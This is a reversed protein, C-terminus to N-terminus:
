FHEPFASSQPTSAPSRFASPNPNSDQEARSRGDLLLAPTPLRLSSESLERLTKGIEWGLHSFQFFADIQHRKQKAFDLEPGAINVFLSRERQEPSLEKTLQTVWQYQARNQVLFILFHSPEEFKQRVLDQIHHNSTRVDFPFTEPAEGLTRRLQETFSFSSSFVSFKTKPDLSLNQLNSNRLIEKLLADNLTALRPSRWGPFRRPVSLSAALISKIKLIRAVKQDILKQPLLGTRAARVLYRYVKLQDRRSWTLMILDNGAILARLATKELSGEVQVGKMLLDDTVVIGNYNLDRRLRESIIKESLSAPWGKPDLHTYAVHSMMVASPYIQTFEHFPIKQNEVPHSAVVQSLHTDGQLGGAGPFHKATPLVGASLLGEAFKTGMEAVAQPHTSFVRTGLFDWQYSGLDLVPALNMNFGLNKLVTGTERGFSFLLNPDNSVGLAHASPLLPDTPIRVVNGGEQDVALLLPVGFSKRALSQLSDNLLSIQFPTSINRKFLIIAGPKITEFHKRTVPDLATGQFGVILLQGVKQELSLDQVSPFATAVTPLHLFLLVGVWKAFVSSVIRSFKRM